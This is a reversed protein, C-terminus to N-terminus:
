ESSESRLVKKEVDKCKSTEYARANTFISLGGLLSNIIVNVWISIPYYLGEGRVVENEAVSVIVYKTM